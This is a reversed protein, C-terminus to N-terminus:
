EKIVSFGKSGPILSLRHYFFPDKSFISNINDNTNKPDKDKGVQIENNEPMACDPSKTETLVQSM